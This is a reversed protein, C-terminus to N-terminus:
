GGTCFHTSCIGDCSDVNCTNAWRDCTYGGAGPTYCAHGAVTGEPRKEEKTEFSEVSLRDVDMRLKKM